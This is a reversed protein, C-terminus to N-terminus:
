YRFRARYPRIDLHTFTSGYGLGGSWQPAVAYQVMSPTKGHVSIDAAMAKKHFSRQSGGVLRNVRLSRWGSTIRVSVGGLYKDRIVQLRKALDKLSEYYIAQTAEPLAEFDRVLGAQGGAQNTVFFEGLKFNPALRENLNLKM